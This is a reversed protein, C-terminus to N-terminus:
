DLRRFNMPPFKDEKVMTEGEFTMSVGADYFTWTDLGPKPQKMDHPDGLRVITKVKETLPRRDIAGGKIFVVELDRTLYIWSRDYGAYEWGRHYLEAMAKNRPEVTGLKSYWLRMADPRGLERYVDLEQPSLMEDPTPSPWDDNLELLNVSHSKNLTLFAEEGKESCGTLCVLAFLAVLPLLRSM